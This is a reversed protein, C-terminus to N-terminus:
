FIDRPLEQIGGTGAIRQRQDELDDIEKQWYARTGFDPNVATMGEEVVQRACWASYHIFRMARLPELLRLSSPVFPRFTEYGERLLALEMQVEEPPGPLLMWIDQVPPGVVMDDFDILCLSEGPRYLVNGHHCDGHIRIMEVHEFLPTIDKIMRGVVKMYTAALDEPLLGCSRLYHVQDTTSKQPHMWVRDRPQHRAGVMHLRGLLRGFALWQEEDFEDVLRGGWKPFVAFFVEGFKGLTGGGAGPAGPLPLPAVVPIEEAALELLFDHEDQLAAQSWRGPRYLKVVMGQGEADAIEYVRNIYSNYSRCLNSCRRGLAAEVTDLIREPDIGAFPGKIGAIASQQEM